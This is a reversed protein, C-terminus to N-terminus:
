IDPYYDKTMQTAFRQPQPKDKESLTSKLM